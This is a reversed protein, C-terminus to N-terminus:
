RSRSTVFEVANRIQDDSLDPQGGRAPMQTGGPGQFGNLAHEFLVPLGKAIRPAWAERDGIRPAGALGSGHCPRCSERWVLRGAELRPDELPLDWVPTAAPVAAAPAAREADAPGADCACLLGTALPLPLLGRLAM